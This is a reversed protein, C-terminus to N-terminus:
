FILFVLLMGLTFALVFTIMGLFNFLLWALLTRGIRTFYFRKIALFLGTELLIIALFWIFGPVKFVFAEIACLLTMVLFVGSFYHLLFIFHEVYYSRRKRFFLYLLWAMVASMVLITWTLSSIISNSFAQNDRMSRIFQKALTREKWGNIKYTAYLEEFPMKQLDILSITVPHSLIFIPVSDIRSSTDALNSGVLTDLGGSFKQTIRSVVQSAEPTQLSDPMHEYMTQIELGDAYHKLLDSTPIVVKKNDGDVTTQFAGGHEEAIKHIVLLFFFMVVFFFQVPHPYAKIRGKFYETTVKGPVLLQWMMRVFQGDLHTINHLFKSFLESMRIRGDFKKQGCHRCFDGKRSMEKGCNTCTPKPSAETEAM